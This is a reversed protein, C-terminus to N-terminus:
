FLYLEFYMYRERPNCFCYLEIGWSIDTQMGFSFEVMQARGMRM